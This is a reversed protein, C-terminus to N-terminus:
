HSTNHFNLAGSNPPLSDFFYNITSCFIRSYADRKVHM